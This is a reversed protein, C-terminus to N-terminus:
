SDETQESCRFELLLPSVQRKLVADARAADSGFVVDIEELAVNATEPVYRTAWVYGAACAGSFIAFTGAPSREMLVPTLLGILVLLVNAM